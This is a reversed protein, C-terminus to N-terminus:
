ASAGAATLSAEAGVHGDAGRLKAGGEVRGGSALEHAVEAVSETVTADGVRAPQKGDHQQAVHQQVGAAVATRGVGGARQLQELGVTEDM